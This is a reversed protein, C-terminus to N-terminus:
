LVHLCLAFVVHVVVVVFVFFVVVRLSLCRLVNKNQRANDNLLSNTTPVWTCKVSCLRCFFGDFLLWVFFPLVHKLEFLALLLHRCAIEHIKTGNGNKKQNLATNIRWMKKPANWGRKRKSGRVTGKKIIVQNQGNCSEVDPTQGMQKEKVRRSWKKGAKKTMITLPMHCLWKQVLLNGIDMKISAIRNNSNNNNKMINMCLLKYRDQRECKM